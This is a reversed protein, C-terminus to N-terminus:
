IFKNFNYIINFNLLFIILIMFIYINLYLNLLTFEIPASPAALKDLEIEARELHGKVLKEILKHYNIFVLFDLLKIIKFFNSIFNNKLNM